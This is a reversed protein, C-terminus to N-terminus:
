QRVLGEHRSAVPFVQQEYPTVNHSHPRSELPPFDLEDTSTDANDRSIEDSNNGKADAGSNLSLPESDNTRKPLIDEPHAVCLAGADRATATAVTANDHGSHLTEATQKLSTDVSKLLGSQRKLARDVASNVFAEVRDSLHFMLGRLKEMTNTCENVVGQCTDKVQTNEYRMVSIEKMLLSVDIDHVDVSPLINVNDCVFYPVDSDDAKHLWKLIDFM